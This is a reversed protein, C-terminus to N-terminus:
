ADELKVGADALADLAADLADRKIWVPKIWVALFADGWQQSTYKGLRVVDEAREAVRYEKAAKAVAILKEIAEPTLDTM